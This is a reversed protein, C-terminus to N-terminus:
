RAKPTRKRVGYQELKRYLTKRDVGLVRAAVSKNGHVADVVHLIHRREIEELSPLELAVASVTVIDESTPNSRDHPPAKNTKTGAAGGSCAAEPLLDGVREPRKLPDSHGL